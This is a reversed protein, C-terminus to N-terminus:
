FSVPLVYGTGAPLLNGVLLNEKLGKLFDRKNELASRTLVKTTQQFSAASLFSDVELSARTIGLVIPEYRIKVMLFRNIREVFELDILEGPFFGTQGGHVIKVKCTMQRVIIELHKDALSVGQTRYVRQVGDVLIQQIKLFSQRVAKEFNLKLSYRQFIAYLLVPLSNLFLRGRITTRAELYQEVKPIGQVIDGTKLTEFPLTMVPSNKAITHGNYTHLIARPSISFYEARRLTIYNSNIHIIQGSNGITSTSYFKYGPKLFTALRLKKYEDVLGFYLTKLKYNKDQYYTKFNSIHYNKLDFNDYYNKELEIFQRHFSTLDKFILKTSNAEFFSTKIKKDLIRLEEVFGSTVLSNKYTTSVSKSSPLKLSLIDAKTLFLKEIQRDVLLGKELNLNLTKSLNQVDTIKSYDKLLEGEFPSYFSTFGFPVQSQIKGNKLLFHNKTVPNLFYSTSFSKKQRKRMSFRSKNFEEKNLKQGQIRNRVLINDFQYKYFSSAFVRQNALFNYNQNFSYEFFPIISNLSLFSNLHLVSKLQIRHHKLINPKALLTKFEHIQNNEKKLKTPNLLNKTLNRQVLLNLYNFQFPKQFQSGLKHFKTLNMANSNLSIKPFSYNLRNSQSIDLVIKLQFLNLSRNSFYSNETKQTLVKRKKYVEYNPLTQSRKKFPLFKVNKIKTFYLYNFGSSSDKFISKLKDSFPKKLKSSYTSTIEQLQTGGQKNFQLPKVKESNSFSNTSELKLNKFQQVYNLSLDIPLFNSLTKIGTTQINLDTSFYKRYLVLSTNLSTLQNKQMSKYLEKKMQQTNPLRNQIIPRILFFIEPKYEEFHGNTEALLKKRNKFFRSKFNLRSNSPKFLCNKRTVIEISSSSNEGRYNKFFCFEVFVPQQEFYINEFIMTGSEILCKHLNLFNSINLTKYVWGPKLSLNYVSNQVKTIKKSFDKPVFGASKTKSPQLKVFPIFTFFNSLTKEKTYIKKVKSLNSMSNIKNNRKVNKIHKLFKLQFYNNENRFDEFTKPFRLKKNIIKTKGFKKFIEEKKLIKLFNKNKDAIEQSDKIKETNFTSSLNNLYFQFYKLFSIKQSQLIGEHKFALQNKKGQFNTSYINFTDKQIFDSKKSAIFLNKQIARDERNKLNSFINVSYNEQPIIAIEHFSVNIKENVNFQLKLNQFIKTTPIKKLNFFSKKTEVIQTLSKEMSFKSTQFFSIKFKKLTNIEFNKINETNTYKFQKTTKIFKQFSNLKLSFLHYSSKISYKKSKQKSVQVLHARYSSKNKLNTKLNQFSRQNKKCLQSHALNLVNIYKQIAFLSPRLNKSKTIATNQQFSNQVLIPTNILLIGNSESNGRQPFWYFGSTPNMNWQDSNKLSTLNFSNHVRKQSFSSTSSVVRNKKSFDNILMEKNAEIFSNGELPLCSFLKDSENSDNLFSLFYGLKRYKINEPKITLIPTQITLQEFKTDAKKRKRLKNNNQLSVEPSNRKKLERPLKSFLSKQKQQLILEQYFLVDNNQNEFKKFKKNNNFNNYFDISLLSNEILFTPSIKQKLLFPKLTKTKLDFPITNSLILPHFFNSQSKENKQFKTKLKVKKMFITNFSPNKLFSDKTIEFKSNYQKQFDLWNALRGSRMMPLSIFNQSFLKALYLRLNNQYPYKLNRKREEGTKICFLNQMLTKTGIKEFDTSVNEQVDNNQDMFHQQIEKITLRSKPRKLFKEKVKNKSHIQVTSTPFGLGTSKLPFHLKSSLGVNSYPASNLINQKNLTEIYEHNSNQIFQVSNSKIYSTQSIPALWQIENLVTNKTVFDKLFPFFNSTLPNKYIKGSLVWVKSWDEAKSIREGYKEDIDELLDIHSYYVEGELSSYVTQEIIQTAINGTPLASVQALLNEKEVFEGHKAFLLTFGPIKYTNMLTKTSNEPPQVFEVPENEPSNKHFEKFFLTGKTKTLFALSGQPMRVCTGSIPDAYEVFGDFPANIQETVNASFVGGTHFTRMTLQTGPEGISQGAIVGVAEGISVLRSTALSWGYCLQCVLKRTECTLPSRVLAKKTIKAIIKALESDIEQNKYAIKSPQPIGSNIINKEKGDLNVIDQALVRGILRNEFSYITKPGDKMDFLFIGRQTGCDFKSVIVHQAVDVLRRTLYGATATRLATDVIGKRAGYTSILYETLTLGERFNSQIPFDIIKGQPDSMLGRMGVLQRVQSLNGRAGSFAMMYVPNLVDTKEFYAVVEKKLNESTENWTEVFHQLKEIETTEGKLYQFKAESVLVEAKALFEVKKPPIKLDEIGLSIGAKTAYGFGLHKLQELLGITKKEGYNKLFWSVFSKLRGKDLSFNWFIPEKLNLPLPVQQNKQFFSNM